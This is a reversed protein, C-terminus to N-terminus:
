GIAKKSEYLGLARFFHSEEVVFHRENATPGGENSRATGRSENVCLATAAKM